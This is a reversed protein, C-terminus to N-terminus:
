SSIANSDVVKESDIEAMIRNREGISRGVALSTFVSDQNPYKLNYRYGANAVVTYKDFEKLVIVPIYFTTNDAIGVEVANRVTLAM